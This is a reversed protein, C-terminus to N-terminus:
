NFDSSGSLWWSGIRWIGYFVVIFFVAILISWALYGFHSLGIQDSLVFFPVLAGVAMGVLGLLKFIHALARHYSAQLSLKRKSKLWILATRVGVLLALLACDVLFHPLSM